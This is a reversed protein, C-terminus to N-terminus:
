AKIEQFQECENMYDIRKSFPRSAAFWKLRRRLTRNIGHTLQTRGDTQRDTMQTVLPPDITEPSRLLIELSHGV